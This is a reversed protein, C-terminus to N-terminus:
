WARHRRRHRGHRGGSYLLVPILFPVSLQIGMHPGISVIRVISSDVPTDILHLYVFRSLHNGQGKVVPGIRGIRILYQFDQLFVACPGGKKDLSVVYLALFVQDFLLQSKAALNPIMGHVVVIQLLKGILLHAGRDFPHCINELAFETVGGVQEPARIDGISLLIRFLAFRDDGHTLLILQSNDVVGTGAVIGIGFVGRLHDNVPHQQFLILQAPAYVAGDEKKVIFVWGPVTSATRVM